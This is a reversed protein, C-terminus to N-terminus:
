TRSRTDTAFHDFARSELERGEPERTRIGDSVDFNRACKKHTGDLTEPSFSVIHLVMTDEQMTLQGHAEEAETERPWTVGCYLEDSTKNLFVSNIRLVANMNVVM